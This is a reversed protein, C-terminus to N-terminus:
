KIKWLLLRYFIALVKLAHQFRLSKAGM